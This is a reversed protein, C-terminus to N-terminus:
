AAGPSGTKLRELIGEVRVRAPDDKPKSLVEALHALEEVAGYSVADPPVEEAAAPAPEETPQPRWAADIEPQAREQAIVILRDRLAPELDAFPVHVVHTVSRDGESSVFVVAVQGHDLRVAPDAV